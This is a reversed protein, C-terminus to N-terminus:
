PVCRSTEKKGVRREESRVSLHSEKKQRILKNLIETSVLPTDASLVLVDERADCLATFIGGMPGKEKIKDAIVPIGFRTYKENNAVIKIDPNLVEVTEILFQILPKGNILKLGKDE